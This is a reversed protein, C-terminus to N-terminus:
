ARVIDGCDMFPDALAARHQGLAVDVINQARDIM